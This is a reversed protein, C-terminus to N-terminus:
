DLAGKEGREHDCRHRLANRRWAANTIAATAITITGDKAPAASPSLGVPGRSQAFQRPGVM